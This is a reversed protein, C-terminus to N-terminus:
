FCLLKKLNIKKKNCYTKLKSLTNKGIDRDGKRLLCLTSKSIGTERSALALNGNFEKNLFNNFETTNILRDM